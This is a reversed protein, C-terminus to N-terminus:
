FNIVQFKNEEQLIIFLIHECPSSYFCAQRPLGQVAQKSSMRNMSKMSHLHAKLFELVHLNLLHSAQHHPGSAPAPRILFPSMCPTRASPSIARIRAWSKVDFGRAYSVLWLGTDSLPSKHCVCVQPSYGLPNRPSDKFALSTNSRADRRVLIHNVHYSQGQTLDNSKWQPM